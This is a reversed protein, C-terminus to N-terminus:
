LGVMLDLVAGLITSATKTVAVDVLRHDAGGWVHTAVLILALYRAPVVVVARVTGCVGDSPESV